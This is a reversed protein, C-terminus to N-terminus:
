CSKKFTNLKIWAQRFVNEVEIQNKEKLVNEVWILRWLERQTHFHFSIMSVITIANISELKLCVSRM